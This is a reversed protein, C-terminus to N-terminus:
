AKLLKRSLQVLMKRVEQDSLEPLAEEVVVGQIFGPVREPQYPKMMRVLASMLPKIAKEVFCRHCLENEGIDSPMPWMTIRVEATWATGPFLADEFVPYRSITKVTDDMVGCGDCKKVHAM